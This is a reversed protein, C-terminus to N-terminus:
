SPRSIGWILSANCITTDPLYHWLPRWTLFCRRRTHHGQRIQDARDVGNMNHNYDNIFTPIPLNSGWLLTNQASKKSPRKRIRDVTELGNNITTMFLVMQAGMWAIQLVKNGPARTYLDGWPTQNGFKIKM